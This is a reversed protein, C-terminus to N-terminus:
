QPEAGRATDFWAHLVDVARRDGVVAARQGPPPAHGAVLPMFAPASVVVTAALDGPDDPTDPEVQLPRGDAATVTFSGDGGIAYAVSFRHGRTWAPEVAAALAALLLGPHVPSGARGLELLGVPQRQARVLRRLRRRSGRVRVGRLRRGAGGAALPALAHLPGEVIVDVEDRGGPAPRPEVRALGAKLVVRLTGVAPATLDYVLDDVALAQVPLLAALLRAATEPDSVALRELGTRLWPTEALPPLMARAGLEEIAASGAHARALAVSATRAASAAGPPDARPADSSVARAPDPHATAAAAPNAHPPDTSPAGPPGTYPGETSPAGLPGTHAGETSPAGPLATYPGGTSPAGPPGTPFGDSPAGPPGTPPAQAAPAATPAQGAEGGELRELEQEAAARLREAARQLDAIVDHRSASSPGEPVAARLEAAIAHLRRRTEDEVPDLSPATRAQAAPGGPSGTGPARQEAHKPPLPAHLPPLAGPSEDATAGTPKEAGGSGAAGADGPSAGAAVGRLDGVDSGAAAATTDPEAAGTAGAGSRALHERAETVQAHLGTILADLAPEDHAPEPRATAQERAVRGEAAARAAQEAALRERLEAAARRAEAASHEAAALADRERAADARASAADSRARELEARAADLEVERARLAAELARGRQELAELQERLDAVAADGARGADAAEVQARVQALEDRILAIAAQVREQVAARRALERELAAVHAVLARERESGSREAAADVGDEEAREGALRRELGAVRARLAEAEAAATRLADLEGAAAGLREAEARLADAQAARARLEEAEARLEDAQAARARLAEAEERLADAEAARARLGEAEERLADVEAARARLKEAEARLSEAEERLADAEAASTRLQEAEARLAAAETRLAETEARRAAREADAIRTADAARRRAHVLERELTDVLEEAGALRARLDQIETEAGRRASAVEEELEARRRREAEERQETLRLRREADAIRAALRDRDTGARAAREELHALQARLTEVTQEASAARRAASEEALEARRARREALVAPDIVTGPPGDMAGPEAPPLALTFGPGSLRAEGAEVAARADVPVLFAASWAPALGAPPPDPLAEVADDGIALTVAPPVTAGHWAGYVRVEIEDPSSPIWEVRQVSLAHPERAPNM